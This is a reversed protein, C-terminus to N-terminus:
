AIDKRCMPCSTNDRMWMGLCHKHFVHGCHLHYLCGILSEMCIVCSATTMTDKSDVVRMKRMRQPSVGRKPPASTALSLQQALAFIQGEHIRQRYQDDHLALYARAELETQDHRAQIDLLERIREVLYGERQEQLRQENELQEVLRAIARHTDDMYESPSRADLFNRWSRIEQHNREIRHEMDTTSSAQPQIRGSRHRTRLVGRLLPLGEPIDHWSVMGAADAGVEDSDEHRPHHRRRPDTIHNRGRLLVTRRNNNAQSSNRNSSSNWQPRNHARRHLPCDM